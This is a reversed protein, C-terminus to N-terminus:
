IYFPSKYTIGSVIINLWGAPNGMLLNIGGYTNISVPVTLLNTSAASGSIATITNTGNIYLNNDIATINQGSLNIRDIQLNNPM